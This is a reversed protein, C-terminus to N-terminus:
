RTGRTNNKPSNKSIEFSIETIQKKIGELRLLISQMEKRGHEAQTPHEGIADKIYRINEAVNENLKGTMEALQASTRATNELSRSLSDATKELNELEKRLIEADPHPSGAPTGNKLAGVAKSLTDVGRNLKEISDALQRTANAGPTPNPNEAIKVSGSLKRSEEDISLTPNLLHVAGSVGLVGTVTLASALLASQGTGGIMQIFSQGAGQNETPPAWPPTGDDDNPDPPTWAEPGNFMGVNTKPWDQRDQLAKLISHLGLARYSEFQSEDFFQDSTPQQPFVRSKSRSAKAYRLLDFPEDGSLVPKLLLLSGEESEKGEAGPYIIRAMLHHQQSQRAVEPTLLFKEPIIQVGFDTRVKRIANELDEYLYDPDHGADVVMIKKCRRRIMEYLGLNEFHGGDSLYLLSSDANISTAFERWLTAESFRFEKHTTDESIKSPNPAWFGLRINFFFLLMSVFLSSHYGMNPSVAAGSVTIAKGFSITEGDVKYQDTPIYGTIASGCRLPTMVFSAAKRQQWELRDEPPRTLNLASNIVHFLGKEKEKGRESLSLDDEENFRIPSSNSSQKRNSAGLYAHTLRVGYVQGLAVFNPHLDRFFFFLISIIFIFFALWICKRGTSILSARHRYAINLALSEPLKLDEMRVRQELHARPQPSRYGHQESPEGTLARDASRNAYILIGGDSGIKLKEDSTKASVSAPAEKENKDNEGFPCAANLWFNNGDLQAGNCIGRYRACALRSAESGGKALDIVLPLATECAVREPNEDVVSQTDMVSLTFSTTLTVALLILVMSVLSAIELLTIGFLDSIRKAKGEIMPGQKSWYGAMSSGIAVIAGGITVTAAAVDSRLIEMELIWTPLKIVIIAFVFFLAFIGLLIGGLENRDYNFKKKTRLVALIAFGIIAAFFPTIIVALWEIGSEKWSKTRTCLYALWLVARPTFLAMALIPIITIWHWVLKWLFTAALTLSNSSIGRIPSLYNSYSRLWRIPEAEPLGSASDKLAKDVTSLDTRRIWASLWAGIYGGGSVTSLYHFDKLKGLKALGQLVGLSFTASRIGGGSLCLAMPEEAGSGSSPDEESGNRRPSKLGLYDHEEAIVADTEEDITRKPKEFIREM